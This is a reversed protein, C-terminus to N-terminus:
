VVGFEERLKDLANEYIKAIKVPKVDLMNAIDEFSFNEYIALFLVISEHEELLFMKREIMIALESVDHRFGLDVSSSDPLVEELSFFEHESQSMYEDINIAHSAHYQADVRRVEDVGWGLREAVEYESPERRL